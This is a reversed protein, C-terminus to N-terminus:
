AMHPRQETGSGQLRAKERFLFEDNLADTILLANELTGCLAIRENRRRDWISLDDKHYYPKM